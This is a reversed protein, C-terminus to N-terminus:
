VAGKPKKGAKKAASQTERFGKAWGSKV